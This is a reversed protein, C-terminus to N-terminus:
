MDQFVSSYDYQLDKLDLSWIRVVWKGKASVM